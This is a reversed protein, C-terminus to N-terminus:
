SCIQTHDPHIFPLCTHHEACEAELISCIEIHQLSFECNDVTTHVKMSSNLEDRIKKGTSKQQQQM